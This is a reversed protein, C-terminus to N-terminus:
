PTQKLIDCAKQRGLTCAKQAYAKAKEFNKPGGHGVDHMVGLNYCGEAVGGDCAKGYLSRAEEIAGKEYAVLGQKLYEEATKNGAKDEARVADTLFLLCAAAILIHVLRMRFAGKIIDRLQQLMVMDAVPDFGM